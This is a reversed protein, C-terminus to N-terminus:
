SKGRLQEQSGSNSQRGAQREEQNRKQVGSPQRQQGEPSSKAAVAAKGGLKRGAQKGEHNGKRPQGRSGSNLKDGKM